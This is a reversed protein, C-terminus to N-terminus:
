EGTHQHQRIFTYALFGGFALLVSAIGLIAFRLHTERREIEEAVQRCAESDSPETRCQDEVKRITRSDDDELAADRVWNHPSVINDRNTPDLGMGTGFQALVSPSIATLVILVLLARM